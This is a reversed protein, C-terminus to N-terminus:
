HTAEVSTLFGARMESVTLDLQRQFGAGWKSLSNEEVTTFNTNSSHGCGQQQGLRLAAGQHSLSYWRLFYYYYFPMNISGPSVLPPPPHPPTSFLAHASMSSVGQKHLLSSSLRASTTKCSHLLITCKEEGLASM